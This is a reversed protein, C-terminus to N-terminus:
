KDGKHLQQTEEYTMVRFGTKPIDFKAAPVPEYSVSNLTYKFKLKGSELEYQVPLGPLQAFANDYQKNLFVIDPAFYVILSKGDPSQGTAKKCKFGAIIQESNDISFKMNQYFQNKQAWNDATLTIMLKQGSYQKLIIGKGSKSDYINSETGLTSVMDTRSQTGKIYVTLVAGELSKSMAIKDNASETSISYNITGDSVVKQAFSFNVLIAISIFFFLLSKSKM